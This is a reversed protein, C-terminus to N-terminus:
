AMFQMTVSGSLDNGSSSLAVALGDGGLVVGAGIVESPLSFASGDPASVGDKLGGQRCAPPMFLVVVTQKHAVKMSCGNEYLVDASGADARVRDGAELSAGEAVPKFGDGHNVLIVGDINTLLAAQAGAALLASIATQAIFIRLLGIGQRNRMHM